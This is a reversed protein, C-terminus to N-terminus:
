RVSVSPDYGQVIQNGFSEMAAKDEDSLSHLYTMTIYETSHGLIMSLQFVAVTLGREKSTKYLYHTAFTHRLHHPVLARFKDASEPQKLVDYHEAVRKCTGDWDFLSHVTLSKGPKKPDPFIYQKITKIRQGAIWAKLYDRYQTTLPIVVQKNGKVTTVIEGKEWDIERATLEVMDGHRLGTSLIGFVFHHLTKNKCYALFTEMESDTLIIKRRQPKSLREVSFIDTYAEHLRPYQRVRYRKCVLKYFVKLIAINGNVISNGVEKSRDRRFKDVEHAEIDQLYRKGFVARLTNMCSRYYDVTKKSKGRVIRDQMDEEFVREGDAWAILREEGPMLAGSHRASICQALFAEADGKNPSVAKTYTKGDRSIRTVHSKSLTMSEGCHKCVAAKEGICVKKYGRHRGKENKCQSNTCRWMKRITAM